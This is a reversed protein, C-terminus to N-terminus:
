LQPPRPPRPPRPLGHRGHRREQRERREASRAAVAPREEAPASRIEDVEQRTRMFDAVIGIGWGLAPWAPWFYEAGTLAWIAVLLVMVLVYSTLHTSFGRRVEREEPVVTGAPEGPVDGPLDALLPELEPMTTAAYAADTRESLEEVTLRGAAAHGSLTEVVRERDADSARLAPRDPDASM